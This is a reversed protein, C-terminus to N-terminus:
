SRPKPLVQPPIADPRYRSPRNRWFYTGFQYTVVIFFIVVVAAPTWDAALVTRATMLAIAGFVAGFVVIGVVYVAAPLGASFRATTGAAALRRHLEAVFAAYAGDLREQEMISRWSSSVIQIKPADPSWIEAIFRHWQMSVPRYSLRVARVQDYRIRGSHRGIEWALADPQLTFRCAAGILSPKFAYVPNGDQDTAPSNM